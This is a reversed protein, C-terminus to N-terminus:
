EGLMELLKMVTRWNRTTAAVKLKKEFFNNGMKARGAGNAAFFYLFDDRLAYDEPKYDFTALHGIAEATPSEALFTVYQYKINDATLFPNGTLINRLDAAQRILVTVEFAYNKQIVEAVEQALVGRDTLDSDLLINGSQIYTQVEGFGADILHQRLEAMKIKKQGSVNIGRLLAVYKPM